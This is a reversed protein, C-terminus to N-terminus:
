ATARCARDGTWSRHWIGRCCCFVEPHQSPTGSSLFQGLTGFPLFHAEATRQRRACAADLYVRFPDPTGAMAFLFPLSPGGSFESLARQAELFSLGDDTPSSAVPGAVASEIM